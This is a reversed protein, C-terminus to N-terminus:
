SSGIRQSLGKKCPLYSSATLPSRSVGRGPVYQFEDPLLTLGFRESLEALSEGQLDFLDGVGLDAVGLLERADEDTLLDLRHRSRFSASAWDFEELVWRVM